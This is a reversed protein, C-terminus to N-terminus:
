PGIEDSGLVEGNADLAVARWGIRRGGGPAESPPDAKSRFEAVFLRGMDEFGPPPDYLEADVVQGDGTELRVSAVDDSVTGSARYVWWGYSSGLVPGQIHWVDAHGIAGSRIGQFLEGRPGCGRGETAVLASPLRPDAWAVFRDLTQSANPFITGLCWDRSGNRWVSIEWRDPESSRGDEENVPVGSALTAEVSLPMSWGGPADADSPYRLRGLVSDDAGTATLTGTFSGWRRDTVVTYVRADVTMEPSAPHITGVYITGDDVALEVRAVRASVLGYFIQQHGALVPAYATAPKMLKLDDGRLGANCRSTSGTGIRLSDVFAICSLDANTWINWFNGDVEGWAANVDYVGLNPSSVRGGVPLGPTSTPSPNAPVGRESSRLLSMAGATSGIALVAVVAVAALVVGAQHLRTRRRVTEPIHAPSFRLEQLDGERREYMERLDRELDNM